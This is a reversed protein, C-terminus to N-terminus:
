EGFLVRGDGFLPKESINTTRHDAVVWASDDFGPQIEPLSDAFKWGTLQPVHVSKASVRQTLQGTLFGRGHAQTTARLSDVREGNWTVGVKSQIRVICWWPTPCVRTLVSNELQLVCSASSRRRYVVQSLVQNLDTLLKSRAQNFSKVRIARALRTFPPHSELLPTEHVPAQAALRSVAGDYLYM